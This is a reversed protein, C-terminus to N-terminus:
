VQLQKSRKVLKVVLYSFMVIAFSGLIDVPHHVNALVRAYGILSALIISFVGLKKNETYITFAITFSLLAHDSPFGNDSSHFLLPSVGDHEFPRPLYLYYSLLRAAVFSISSILFFNITLQMRKKSICVFILFLVILFFILHKAIAITLYPVPSNYPIFNM